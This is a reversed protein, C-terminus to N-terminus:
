NRSSSSTFIDGIASFVSGLWELVTDIIGQAPVSTLIDSLGGQLKEIQSSIVNWDINLKAFNQSFQVLQNVTTENLNINFDNSVNIIIDRYEEPTKPKETAIQEKVKTIFQAAKNNDGLQKGLEQTRALEESAVQKQDESIKKGTATEYAKLIGTLGATGSVAFPATVYIEADKVGATIAASAYMAETITTINHTKVTIGKGSGILVIKASSLARTGIQAKSAYKGAYQHEEENTVEIKKVNSANPDVGMEQLIANKQQETLDHGLTVVTDGAVADAFVATPLAMALILVISLFLLRFRKGM